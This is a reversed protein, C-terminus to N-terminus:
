NVKNLSKMNVLFHPIRSIHRKQGYNITDTQKATPDEQEVRVDGRTLLHAEGEREREGDRERRRERGKEREGDRERM